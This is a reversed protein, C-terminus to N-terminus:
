VFGGVICRRGSRRRGRDRAGEALCYVEVEGEGVEVGVDFEGSGEENICGGDDYRM